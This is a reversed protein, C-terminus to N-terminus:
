YNGFCEGFLSANSGPWRRPADYPVCAFSRVTRPEMRYAGCSCGYTGSRVFSDRFKTGKVGDNVEEARLDNWLKHDENNKFLDAKIPSSPVEKLIIEKYGSLDLAANLVVADGIQHVKESLGPLPVAPAHVLLSKAHVNLWHRFSRQSEKVRSLPAGPLNIRKPKAARDAKRARVVEDPKGLAIGLRLCNDDSPTGALTRWDLMRRPSVGVVRALSELKHGKALYADILKGVEGSASVRPRGAPM